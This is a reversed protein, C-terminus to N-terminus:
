KVLFKVNDDLRWQQNIRSDLISEVEFQGAQSSNVIPSSNTLYNPQHTQPTIFSKINIINVTNHITLDKPLDLMIANRNPLVKTVKYPGIWKDDLKKVSLTISLNATFLLVQDGINFKPAEKLNRDTYKKIEIQTKSIISAIEEQVKKM